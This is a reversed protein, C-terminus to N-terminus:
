GFENPGPRAPKVGRATARWCEIRIRGDPLPKPTFGHARPGSLLLRRVEAKTEQPTGRDFWEDFDLAFEEETLRVSELGSVTLLDALEGPTANSAHSHDRLREVRQHWARAEPDPDTTHDCLVVIGGLRVLRGQLAMFREVEEVHHLVYRSLCADFKSSASLPEDFLSGVRFTARNGFRECRLRARSIMETSLDIGVVDHGAELLAEAVLGPGCGVDLVRSGSPLDAAEVLRGLASPDSQVPAREFQEAQADFASAIARDRSLTAHRSM